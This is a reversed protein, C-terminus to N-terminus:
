LASKPFNSDHKAPFLSDEERGGRIMMMMVVVMMM